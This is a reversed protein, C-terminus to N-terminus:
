SGIIRDYENHPGIWVWVSDEGDELALARCSRGVRVLWYDGVLQRGKQIQAVSLLTEREVERLEEQCYIPGIPTLRRFVGLDRTRYSASCTDWRGM